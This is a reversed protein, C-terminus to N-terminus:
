TAELDDPLPADGAPPRQNKNKRNNMFTPIAEVFKESGIFGMSWIVAQILGDFVYDVITKGWFVHAIIVVCLLLVLIMVILRKTSIKNATGDTIASIFM